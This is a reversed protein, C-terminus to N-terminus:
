GKMMAKSQLYELAKQHAEEAIEFTCGYQKHLNMLYDAKTYKKSPVSPLDEIIEYATELGSQDIVAGCRLEHNIANIAEQRSITEEKM